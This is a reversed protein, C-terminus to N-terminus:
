GVRDAFPDCRGLQSVHGTLPTCPLIVEVFDEACREHDRDCHRFMARRHRCDRAGFFDNGSISMGGRNAAHKRRGWEDLYPSDLPIRTMGAPLLCALQHRWGAPAALEVAKPAAYHRVVAMCAASQIPAMREPLPRGLAVAFRKSLGETDKSLVM